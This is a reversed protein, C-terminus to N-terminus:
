IEAIEPFDTLVRSALAKAGLETPHIGDGSLMGSHWGTEGEIVAKEFDIYRHGSAKVWENKYSNDVEIVPDTDNEFVGCSPITALIVNIGREECMAIVSETAYSWSSNVGGNDGNNMGLCWVLYKPKGLDLLTRVSGLEDNAAGGPFGCALWNDFGMELLYYPYRAPNTLGLYSDGFVWVPCDIDGFTLSYSCDTMADGNNKVSVAGNCSTWEFEASKYSGNATFITVSAEIGVKVVVTMFGELTLGHSEEFAKTATGTVNYATIAENTIDIYSAGYVTTGHALRINVSDGIKATFVYTKNKKVDARDIVTLTENSNLIDRTAKATNSQFGDLLGVRKKLTAVEKELLVAPLYDTFPEYETATEGKELQFADMNAIAVSWRLFRCNPPTTIRNGVILYGQNGGIYQKDEDYFDVYAAQVTYGSAVYSTSPEVSIYDSVALDGNDLITNGGGLYKGRIVGKANKDFLNKGRVVAVTKELIRNHNTLYEPLIQIKSIDGKLIVPSYVTYVGNEPQTETAVLMRLVLPKTAGEDTQYFQYVGAEKTTLIRLSGDVLGGEYELCVSGASSLELKPLIMTYLGKPLTFRDSIQNIWRGGQYNCVVDGVEHAIDLTGFVDNHFFRNIDSKNAKENMQERVAEGANEYTLGNAGVRIDALEADGTTSGEQLSLFNNIRSREVALANTAEAYARLLQTYSDATPDSIVVSPTGVEIKYKLVTTMKLKEEDENVGKVGIYLYGSETLVEPPVLCYGDLSLLVERPTPNKSTYFIASKVYGDWYRDFTIHLRVTNQNNCAVKPFVTASLVQDITVAQITTM